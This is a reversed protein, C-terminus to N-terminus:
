FATRARGPGVLGYIAAKRPTMSAGYGLDADNRRSKALSREEQEDERTFMPPLRISPRALVPSTVGALMPPLGAHPQTPPFHLPPLSVGHHPHGAHRAPAHQPTTVHPEQGQSADFVPIGLVWQVVDDRSENMRAHVGREAEEILNRLTALSNPPHTNLGRGTSLGVFICRAWTYLNKAETSLVEDAEQMHANYMFGDQGIPFGTLEEYIARVAKRIKSPATVQASPM